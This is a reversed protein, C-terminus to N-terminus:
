PSLLDLRESTMSRSKELFFVDITNGNAKSHKTPGAPCLCCMVDGSDKARQRQRLGEDRKLHRPLGIGCLWRIRWMALTQQAHNSLMDAGLCPLCACAHNSLMAAVAPQLAKIAM